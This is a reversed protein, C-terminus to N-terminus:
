QAGEHHVERDICLNEQVRLVIESVQKQQCRRVNHGDINGSIEDSYLAACGYTQTQPLFKIQQKFHIYTTSQKANHPMM